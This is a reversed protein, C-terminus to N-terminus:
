KAVLYFVGRISDFFSSKPTSHNSPTWNYLGQRAVSTPLAEDATEKTEGESPTPPMANKNAQKNAIRLSRPRLDM